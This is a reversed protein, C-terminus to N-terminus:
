TWVAQFRAIVHIAKQQHACLKRRSLSPILRLDRSPLLSTQITWDGADGFENRSPGTNIMAATTPM